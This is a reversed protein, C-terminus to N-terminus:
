MQDQGTHYVALQVRWCQIKGNKIKTRKRNNFMFAVSCPDTILTFHIRWLFHRWKRVAEIIAVAEKEISPYNTESKYLVRSMFAVPRGDQNLTASVPM